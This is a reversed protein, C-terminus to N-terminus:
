EFRPWAHNLAKKTRSLADQLPTPKQVTVTSTDDHASLKLAPQQELRERESNTLIDSWHVDDDYEISVQGERFPMEAVCRTYDKVFMVHPHKPTSDYLPSGNWLATLLHQNSQGPGFLDPHYCWLVNSINFDLSAYSEHLLVQVPWQAALAQIDARMREKWVDVCYVIRDVPLEKLKDVRNDINSFHILANRGFWDCFTDTCELLDIYVDHGRDSLAEIMHFGLWSGGHKVFVNAM